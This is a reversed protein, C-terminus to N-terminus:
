RRAHPSGARALLAERALVAAGLAGVIQPEFPIHAKVGLREEVRKVVGINKAVGGTIMFAEEVGVRELLSQVRASIADCAGALIDNRHRGERLQLLIDTQAFVTCYSSISVPGEVLRLSLPGIENLPIELTAAVRELYRGTGAACKDNMAFDVVRGKDDCRIAKCDQGGMDLICRVEPCLWHAGRAHCSIETVNRQAFPVNVRGYGTSVIYELDDFRLGSSNLACDTVRRAAEASDPGTLIVSWSVIESDKMVVAKASLSGIDIGATIM